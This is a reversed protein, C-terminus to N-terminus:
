KVEIDGDALQRCFESWGGWSETIEHLIGRQEETVDAAIRVRSVPLNLSIRTKGTPMYDTKAIRWLTAKSLGSERYLKAIEGWSLSEGDHLRNLEAKLTNIAEVYNSM